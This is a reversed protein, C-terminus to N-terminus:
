IRRCTALPVLLRDTAVDFLRVKEWRVGFRIRKGQRAHSLPLPTRAILHHSGTQLHVHTEVGLPEVLEVLGQFPLGGENSSAEVALEIEEPRIGLWVESTSSSFPPADLSIDGEIPGGGMEKFHLRGGKESTVVGRIFNMPPQGLFDGVFRNVPERYVKLPEGAQEVQGARMVAIRDGMTMAETTDHTVYIMTAQLREHLRLLEARLQARLKGDLSALPEDFLYVQPQRVLARGLAVRQKQGGSLERPKQRLVEKLDLIEVAEDVRRQIQAVTLKQLKLGFAINQEATLHPYLAYNQFVMAIGRDKAPVRNVERDGICITGQTPQELGAILRLTTTKGCGSPGVLVLFERDRVELEFGRLAQVPPGNRGPFQKSVARLTVGAM